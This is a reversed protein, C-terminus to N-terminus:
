DIINKDNIFNHKTRLRIWIIVTLLVVYSILMQMLGFSVERSAGPLAFIRDIVFTCYKLILDAGFAFVGSLIPILLGSIGTLFVLLMCLPVVPLILMNALLSWSSFIGFSYILIPLTMIQASTTTVILERLASPKKEGWFYDHLLPALVLVGAFALFSLYWGLDGLIYTPKILLTISASILILSVPHVKRGYYWALLSMGAVLGARSMSPSLGTIMMFGIIMFGGLMASLYKSVRVFLRRAFAVLITLNYGSAVVVHSLGLLKIKNQLDEPLDNKQGLLFGLGLSRGPESIQETQVAFKDRVVLGLDNRSTKNVEMIDARTISAVFSGFGPSIYGQLKVEDSRKITVNDSSKVWVESKFKYGDVMVNKLKFRLEGSPGHSIDDSIVGSIVKTQGYFQSFDSNNVEYVSFRWLGLLLGSLLMTLMFIRRFKIFSVTVLLIAIFAWFNDSFIKGGLLLALLIGLGIGVSFCLTYYYSHTNKFLGLRSLWSM